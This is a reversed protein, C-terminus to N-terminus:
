TSWREDTSSMTAADIQRAITEAAADASDVRTHKLETGFTRDTLWAEVHAAHVAAAVDSHLDSGSVLAVWADRVLTAAREFGAAALLEWVGVRTTPRDVIHWTAPDLALRQEFIAFSLADPGTCQIETAIECRTKLEDPLTSKCVDISSQYPFSSYDISFDCSAMAPCAAQLLATAEDSRTTVHVTKWIIGGVHFTGSCVHSGYELLFDEATAVNTVSAAEAMASATLPVSLVDLNFSKMPVTAYTVHVVSRGRLPLDPHPAPGSSRVAACFNKAAATSPFWADTIDRGLTPAALVCHTPPQVIAAEVGKPSGSFGFCHGFLAAGGSARAVVDDDTPAVDVASVQDSIKKLMKELVLLRQVLTWPDQRKFDDVIWHLVGLASALENFQSVAVDIEEENARGVADQLRITAAIADGLTDNLGM